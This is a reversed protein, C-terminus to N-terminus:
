VGMSRRGQDPKKTVFMGASPEYDFGRSTGRSGVGMVESVAMQFGSYAVGRRQGRKRGFQNVETRLCRLARPLCEFELRKGPWRLRFIREVENRRLYDPAAFSTDFRTVIPAQGTDVVESHAISIRTRITTARVAGRQAGGIWASTSGWCVVCWSKRPM